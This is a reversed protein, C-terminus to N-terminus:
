LKAALRLLNPVLYFSRFFFYSCERPDLSQAGFDAKGEKYVSMSAM